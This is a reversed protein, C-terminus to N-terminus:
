PPGAVRLRAFRKGGTGAPISARVQQVQGNDFEIVAHVGDTHWDDSALTDSWEVIFVAGAAAAAASRTNAFELGGGTIISCTSPVTNPM